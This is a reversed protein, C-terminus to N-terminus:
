EGFSVVKLPGANGIMREWAAIQSPAATWETQYLEPGHRLMMLAIRAADVDGADALKLFRGYAPSYRGERYLQLAESMGSSAAAEPAPAAVLNVSVTFSGSTTNAYAGACAICLAAAALSPTLPNM